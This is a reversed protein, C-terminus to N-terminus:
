AGKKYNSIVPEAMEECVLQLLLGQSSPPGSLENLLQDALARAIKRRVDAFRDPAEEMLQNRLATLLEDHFTM